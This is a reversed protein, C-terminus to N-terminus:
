LSICFLSTLGTSITKKCGPQDHLSSLFNFAETRGRKVENSCGDRSSDFRYDAGSAMKIGPYDELGGVFQNEQCYSDYIYTEEEDWVQLVSHAFCVGIFTFVVQRSFPM